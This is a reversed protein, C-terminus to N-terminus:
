LMGQTKTKDEKNNIKRRTERKDRRIMRSKKKRRRVNNKKQNPHQWKIKTAKDDKRTSTNCCQLNTITKIQQPQSAVVNNNDTQQNSNSHNTKIERMKARTRMRAQTEGFGIIAKKKITQHKPQRVLCLM